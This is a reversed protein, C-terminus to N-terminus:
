NRDRFLKRLLFVPLALVVEAASIFLVIVFLSSLMASFTALATIVASMASSGLVGCVATAMLALILYLPLAKLAGKIDAPSLEIHLAVSLLVVGGLIRAWIPVSADTVSRALLEPFLRFGEWLISLSNEGNAVMAGAADLYGSLAAPFCLWLILTLVGLGSAIPGIGIFLNGLIHYPNRPNYSHTVYGLVGDESRPRWLVMETIRHGFVLCMLAHGLEHVPTGIISTVSVAVQGAGNGMLRVFLHRFFSVCLGCIVVAGLTYLLLQLFFVIYPIM